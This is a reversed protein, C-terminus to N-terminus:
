ECNSVPECVAEEFHIATAALFPSSVIVHGEYSMWDGGGAYEVGKLAKGNSSWRVDYLGPLGPIAIETVTFEVDHDLEQEEGSITGRLSNFVDVNEEWKVLFDNLHIDEGAQEFEKKFNDWSM